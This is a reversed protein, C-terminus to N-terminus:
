RERVVVFKMSIEHSPMNRGFEKYHLEFKDVSPLVGVEVSIDFGANAISVPPIEKRLGTIEIVNRLTGDMPPHSLATGLSIGPTESWLTVEPDRLTEEGINKVQFTLSAWQGGRPIVIEIPDTKLEQETYCKYPPEGCGVMLESGREPGTLLGIELKPALALKPVATLLSVRFKIEPWRHDDIVFGADTFRLITVTRHEDIKLEQPTNERSVTAGPPEFVLRQAAVGLESLEYQGKGTTTFELTKAGTNSNAPTVVIAVTASLHTADSPGPGEQTTTIPPRAPPASKPKPAGQVRYIRIPDIVSDSAAETLDDIRYGTKAIRIRVEAGATVDELLELSFFGNSDSVADHKATVSSVAVGAVPKGSGADTVQGRIHLSTKQQAALSVVLTFILPVVFHAKM